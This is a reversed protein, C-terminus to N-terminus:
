MASYSPPHNSKRQSRKQQHRQLAGPVPLTRSQAATPAAALGYLAGALHGPTKLDSFLFLWNRFLGPRFPSAIRCTRPACNEVCRRSFAKVGAITLSPLRAPDALVGSCPPRRQQSQEEM